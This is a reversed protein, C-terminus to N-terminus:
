KGPSPNISGIGKFHIPTSELPGEGRYKNQSDFSCIPTHYLASPLTGGNVVEGILVAKKALIVESKKQPLPLDPEQYAIRSLEVMSYFLNTFNTTQGDILNNAPYSLSTVYKFKQEYSSLESTYFQRVNYSPAIILVTWNNEYGKVIFLLQEFM